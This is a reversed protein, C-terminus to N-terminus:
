YSAGIAGPLLPHGNINIDGVSWGFTKYLDIGDQSLPSDSQIAFQNFGTLDAPDTIFAKAQAPFGPNINFATFRGNSMEMNKLSNWENITHINDINFGNEISWWNNSTFASANGKGKLIEKKGIFINNFFRFAFHKSSTDYRIASGKENYITNNYFYSDYFQLSDGSSNWILVGADVAPYGDNVSINFRFTNNFWKSAGAYQFIGYGSGQNEYSLCYQVVSNTVGGDLDFGGGDASGSSTKNRYSICHQIIVSDAEFAWIGVPGNGKRPMDWGNNTASSYEIITNSCFGALIGNGSHNDFNTPDGPNNEAKCYGIYINRCDTKSINGTIFIGAFGNDHASVNTIRIGSSCYVMLGSKQFGQIDLQDIIIDNGNIVEVGNSRSGKKRGSGSFGLNEIQIFRAGNLTMAPAPGSAIVAKAIGYSCIVIPLGEAGIDTSDLIITGEFVQGGKFYITDGPKFKEKNLRDITQWPHNMDGYSSDNGENNIFFQRTQTIPVNAIPMHRCGPFGAAAFMAMIIINWRTKMM